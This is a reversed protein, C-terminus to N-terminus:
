NLRRRSTKGATQIFAPYVPVLPSPDDEKGTPGTRFDDFTNAYRNVARYIDARLNNYCDIYVNLKQNLVDNADASEASTPQTNSSSSDASQAVPQEDAKKEDCASLGATMLMAIIISSLLDKKM